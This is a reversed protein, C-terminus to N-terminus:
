LLFSDRCTLEVAKEFCFWIEVADPPRFVYGQIENLFLRRFDGINYPSSSICIKLLFFFFFRTDSKSQNPEESCRHTYRKLVNRKHKKKEDGSTLEHAVNAFWIAWDAWKELRFWAFEVSHSVSPINLSVLLSSLGSVHFENLVILMANRISM